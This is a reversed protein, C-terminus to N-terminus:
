NNKASKRIFNIILPSGLTLSSAIGNFHGWGPLTKNVAGDIKTDKPPVVSDYWSHISLIRQRHSSDLKKLNGAVARMSEKFDPNQQYRIKWITEPKHVKGCILVVANIIKPNAAYAAIVASAGASVGVLSVIDGKKHRTEIEKNLLELKNNFGQKKRWGLPFYKTELNALEWLKIAKHQGYTKHDGLGPVYIVYHGM